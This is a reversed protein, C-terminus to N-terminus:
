SCSLRRQSACVCADIAPMCACNVHIHVHLHMYLQCPQLGEFRAPACVCGLVETDNPLYLVYVHCCMVISLCSADIQVPVTLHLLDEITRIQLRRDEAQTVTSQHITVTWVIHTQLDDTDSACAM